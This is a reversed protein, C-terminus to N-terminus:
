VSMDVFTHVSKIAGSVTQLDNSDMLTRAVGFQRSGIIENSKMDSVRFGPGRCTEQSDPRHVIDSIAGGMVNRLETAVPLITFTVLNVTGLSEQAKM